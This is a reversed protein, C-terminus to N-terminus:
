YNKPKIQQYAQLSSCVPCITPSHSGLHEHGCARCQWIQTSDKKFVTTKSMNQHLLKFRKEHDAEIKSIQEFKIAIDNFGERRAIEAFNPYILTHEEHEGKAASELNEITSGIKGAPYNATIELNGGGLFDFFIKAHEKENNSTERFIEAIQEYGESTAVEEFLSYKVCAQAEGAFSRLLNKETETGKINM